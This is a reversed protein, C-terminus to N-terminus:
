LSNLLETKKQEYDKETILGEELMEKLLKLKEKIERAKASQEPPPDATAEEEAPGAPDSTAQSTKGQLAAAKLTNAFESRARELDVVCWLPHLGEGDNRQRITLWLREALPRSSSTIETPERIARERGVQAYDSPRSEEDIELFAINLRGGPEVFLVGQTVRKNSSLLGGEWDYSVFRIREDATAAALARTLLPALAAVETAEFVRVVEDESLLHSEWRLVGCLVLGLDREAITFPHEFGQPVIADQEVRHELYVELHDHGDVSDFEDVRDFESRVWRGSSCGAVVILAVMLIPFKRM